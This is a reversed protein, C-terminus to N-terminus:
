PCGVAFKTQFCGFDSLNLVGDGNCDAYSNGTAFKTQFCGFDSLNLAGDGNCDPYCASSCQVAAVKFDDVAAEVISGDGLDSAIFRVRVTASPAVFDAARFEHFYWQGSAQVGGPGVVEVPVWNTGNNTIDINFTDANPAGGQDNSYWRWYSIKADPSASLDLVPSTLTTFGSDVDYTGIGSGANGDTVWCNVGPAPTVDDGPQAATPQPDMRNWRGTAATDGPAVGSWGLNTEFTDTFVATLAAGGVAGFTTGPAGQPDVAAGSSSQAGFYYRVDDRCAVAPIVAEYQNAAIQMMPVTQFSGSNVKYTMTGSNPVPTASVGAVDVRITTPQGPTLTAPRGNPYSFALLSVVPCPINRAQFASCLESYDPTGNALNGDDDNVTLIEVASAPHLSNSGSGGITIDAWAVQLDRINDLGTTAGYKGKFNEKARYWFAGLVEGCDHVEGSCPYVRTTTILNRVLGGGTTFYEGMLGTDYLLVSTTDGFGEGFAGQQLGLQQVVYHGYEHAIVTSFATNNCGGGLNYFNISSGNFFANCTGAVGTRGQIRPLNIGPARDTYYNHTLDAHILVNVQSTTTASPVANFTPTAPVGPTVNPVSASVLPAGDQPVITIWRANTGNTNVTVPASGANPITFNGNRDALAASGGAVSVNVEPINQLTPPNGAYDARLGSTAMGKVTGTVDTTSVENRAEVVLGTAMDVFFTFVRNPAGSGSFKWVRVPAAWVEDGQYIAALPATWNTLDSYQRLARVSALAGAGTSAAEPFGAAPAAALRGSAYVVRPVPQNLVLVRLEGYEVPMGSITQGYSYVTFRGNQVTSAPRAVLELTGAGFAAGHAALFQTAAQEPNMGMTMPVGYIGRVQNGEWVFQTGPYLTRLHEAAANLTGDALAIGCCALSVFAAARSMWRSSM